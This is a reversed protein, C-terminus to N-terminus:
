FCMSNTEECEETNGKDRDMKQSINWVLAVDYNKGDERETKCLFVGVFKLFSQCSIEPKM